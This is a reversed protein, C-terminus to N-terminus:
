TNPSLTEYVITNSIDESGVYNSGNAHRNNVNGEVSFLTSNVLKLDPLKLDQTPEGASVRDWMAELEYRLPKVVFPCHLKHLKNVFQGIDVREVRAFLIEEEM